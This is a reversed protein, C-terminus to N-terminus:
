KRTNLFTLGVKVSFQLESIIPGGRLVFFNENPEYKIRPIFMAEGSIFYGIKRNFTQSFQFGIRGGLGNKKLHYKESISYQSYDKQVQIFGTVNNKLGLFLDAYIQTRNIRTKKDRIRKFRNSEIGLVMNHVKIGSIGYFDGNSLSDIIYFDPSFNSNFSNQYYFYGGRIGLTRSKEIQYAGRSKTKLSGTFFHRSALLNTQNYLLFEKNGDFRYREDYLKNRIPLFTKGEVSWNKNFYYNIKLENGFVLQDRLETGFGYSILLKPEIQAQVFGLSFLLFAFATFKM